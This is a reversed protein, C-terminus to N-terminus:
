SVTGSIATLCLFHHYSAAIIIAKPFCGGTLHRALVQVERFGWAAFEQADRPRQAPHQMRGLGALWTAAALLQPAPLLCSTDMPHIQGGASKLKLALLLLDSRPFKPCKAQLLKMPISPNITKTAGLQCWAPLSSPKHLTTTPLVHPSRAASSCQELCAWLLSLSVLIPCSTTTLSPLWLPPFTDNLNNGDRASRWIKSCMDMAAQGLMVTRSLTPHQVPSRWCDKCMSVEM